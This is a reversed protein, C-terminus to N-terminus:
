VKESILKEPSSSIRFRQFFLPIAQRFSVVLKNGFFDILPIPGTYNAQGGVTLFDSLTLEDWPDFGTFLNAQRVSQPEHVGTPAGRSGLGQKRHSTGLYCSTLRNAYLMHLSPLLISM